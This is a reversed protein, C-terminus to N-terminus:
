LYIIVVLIAKVFKKASKMVGFDHPLNPSDLKALAVDHRLRLIPSEFGRVPQGTVVKGLYRLLGSHSDEKKLKEIITNKVKLIM